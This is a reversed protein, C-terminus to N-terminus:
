CLGGGLESIGRMRSDYRCDYERCAKPRSHYIKCGQNTIHQCPRQMLVSHMGTRESRVLTEGRATYFEKLIDNAVPFAIMECCKRCLLCQKQRNTLESM